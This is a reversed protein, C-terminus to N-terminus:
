EEKDYMLELVENQYTKIIEVAKKLGMVKAGIHASNANSTGVQQNYLQGIERDIRLILDHVVAEAIRRKM